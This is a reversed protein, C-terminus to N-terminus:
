YNIIESKEWIFGPIGLKFTPSFHTTQSKRTKCGDM